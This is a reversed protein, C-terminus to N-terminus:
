RSLVYDLGGYIAALQTQVAKEHGMDPHDPYVETVAVNRAYPAIFGRMLNTKSPALLLGNENKVKLIIADPAIPSVKRVEHLIAEGFERQLENKWEKDCKTLTLYFGQPIHDADPALAEGFRSARDKRLRLDMDNTEHKDLALAFVAGTNEISTMFQECEDIQVIDLDRSFNRNVDEAQWNWRQNYEYGWPSIDPYAVFNFRDSYRVADYELFRFNAEIASPEYPHVGATLLINPKGNHLDGVTVRYVPYTEGPTRVEGYQEITHTNAPLKQLRSVIDAQYDRVKGKAIVGEYWVRKQAENWPTGLIIPQSQEITQTKM